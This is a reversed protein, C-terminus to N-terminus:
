SRERGFIKFFRKRLAQYRVRRAALVAKGTDGPIPSFLHAHLEEVLAHIDEEGEPLMEQLAAAREAATAHIPQPRGLWNLGQNVAHFSQEIISMQLWRVWSDLWPPSPLNHASLFDRLGVSAQRAVRSRTYRGQRFSLFLVVALASIVFWVAITSIGPGVPTPRGEPALLDDPETPRAQPPLGAPAAPSGAVGTFGIPRELPDQNGTPEFEVWGFGVFYVEPWAHQNSDRVTFTSGTESKEGQSFGAVLRAPIGVSRLMLVEASAYYNCFGQKGEFLFWEVPDTGAPPASIRESYSIERRLYDTIAAAKDYPNPQDRTIEQALQQVAPSFGEPLQLYNLAVWDPYNQETYRLDSVTPNHMAARAQYTEGRLFLKQAKITEVDMEGVNVPFYLVSAARSVWVTNAATYLLHGGQNTRFTYRPAPQADYDVLPLFQNQPRFSATGPASSEWEGDEYYDYAVGRWYLRPLNLAEPPAKVSFLVADSHKSGLGLALNQGYYDRGSPAVPQRVAAFADRLKERVGKLPKAADSWFQAASRYEKITMPLSWAVVIILAASVVISMSLDTPADPSLYVHRATWDRRNQLYNVRGLLALGVFLYLALYAMRSAAYFDYISILVIALGAPLLAGVTDRRRALAYGAFIALGWFLLCMVGLFLAYDDVQRNRALLVVSAVMRGGLSSLRESWDHTGQIIRSLQWPLICVSYALALWVAVRPSFRSTGLALGLVGGLLVLPVAYPLHPVWDTVALRGAAFLLALLLLLSSPTDWRRETM